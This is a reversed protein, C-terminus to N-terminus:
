RATQGEPQPSPFGVLPAFLQRLVGPALASLPNVAIDPDATSGSLRFNAAFLGQSGGGLLPGIIPVHGIMSNLAYAPAITGNLEIRDRDIDVWGDATVGLSEGFALLQKISVLSGNTVFDGRLTSFPLGSGSLTSAIGTLSPLSLLRAMMSARIVTYNEGEVRAHLVRQGAQQSLQGDIRLQGGVINDAIDLLKLTAGLDDSQFVLRQSEGEGLRLWLSRGNAHRADVQASQWAGRDRSLGAAVGHLERRPGLVLRDIRANVALPPSAASPAGNTADKLLHSADLRAAHIDARWGGNAGDGGAPQRSVTGNLDSDGIRLRHIDIRDIHKRDAALLASLLGDLGPARAEIQRIRSIRENDLDLVIKAAAPEGPAKKWGAEPVTLATDRLDLLATAEGRNGALAAYTADLAVPGSLREPAFDLGLRRQAADDLTMAIRYRANPGSKPRFFVEAELRAPIDDFRATGRMQAGLRAIDLTFDGDRIGRDLAVNAVSVGALTARVNYDIGDLKLADLLPFKFNLRTEVRGGVRAPDVGTARAYHLPKADIIELVDRLPGGVALDVTLWEVPEDLATLRLSGGTVTLGQLTGGAPTFELQKRDFVATGSVKRVPPLGKLYSVTLDEYRLRGAASLVNATHTVPDLDVVLQMSAEDLVGDHINALTWRRGGPSFAEPWLEGLRAVPVRKLAAAINATVPVRPRADAPAAILEPTVGALVGDLVLESGAGLDLKLSELRVEEREPAYIAHLEGKEIAVGGAPLFESNLRGKGLALDLRSGEATGQALDLRTRLTGSVAAEVHRLQVLEPILPPIDAPQVGGFWMDLDLIRSEAIYRYSAYLEPMSNGIPMALSADGKFGDASREVAIDVRDARWTRGTRQDDVIVSAGRIGVHRLRGLGGDEESRMALQELLRPGFDSPSQEGNVGLKLSITGADDRHLHLAAGEVVLRTPALRGRLLEGLGFSVAMEPFSALPAGDASTVRVNEARLDVQRAARDIGFRMGSIAVDVGLGSRDLAAEFYPALADLEVPGQMLRWTAALLLLITVAAVAGAWRLLRHAGRGFHRAARRHLRPRDPAAPQLPVM